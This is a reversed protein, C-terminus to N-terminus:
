SSTTGSAETAASPEESSPPVISVIAEDEQVHLVQIGQPLQVTNLHITEGIDLQSLDIQIFEPIHTVPTLIELNHHVINLEGGRKIGISIEENIFTLRVSLKVKQNESLRRLDVHLPVDKVNCFQISSILMKGYKETEFVRSFIGPKSIERVLEKLPISVNESPGSGYIVCPVQGSLRLTRIQGKTQNVDRDRIILTHQEPVSQPQSSMAEMFDLCHYVHYSKNAFFDVMKGM